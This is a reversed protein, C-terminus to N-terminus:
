INESGFLVSLSLQCSFLLLPITARLTRIPSVNTSSFLSPVRSPFYALFKCQLQNLINPSGLSREWNGVSNWSRNRKQRGQELNYFLVKYEQM